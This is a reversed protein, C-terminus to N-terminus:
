QPPPNQSLMGVAVALSVCGITVAFCIIALRRKKATLAPKPKGKNALGYAAGAGLLAVMIYLGISDM